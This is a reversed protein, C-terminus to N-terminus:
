SFTQSDEPGRSPPLPSAGPPPFTGEFQQTTPPTVERPMHQASGRRKEGKKRKEEKGRKGQGETGRHRQGEGGKGPAMWM